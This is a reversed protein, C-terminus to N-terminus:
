KDALEIVLKVSAGEKPLMNKNAELKMAAEMLFPVSSQFVTEATVPYVSILTGTLDAGYVREDKTPDPQMTASGTFFWKVPKAMPKGTKLDVLLDAVPKRQPKGDEGPFELLLHVEAGTPAEKGAGVVPKGAKAGLSEMAKHVASPVVEITLLTEHAKQGQSRLVKSQPWCAVVEIPYVDKLQELKRPAIKADVTVTRKAKDVVLGPPYDAAPSPLTGAVVGLTVLLLFLRM